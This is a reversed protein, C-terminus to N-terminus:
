RRPLEGREVIALIANFKAEFAAYADSVTGRPKREMLLLKPTKPLGDAKKITARPEADIIKLAVNWLKGDIALMLPTYGYLVGDANHIASTLLCFTELPDLKNFAYEVLQKFYMMICGNINNAVYKEAFYGLSGNRVAKFCIAIANNRARDRCAMYLPLKMMLEAKEHLNSGDGELRTYFYSPNKNLARIFARNDGAGEGTIQAHIDQLQRKCVAFVNPMKSHLAQLVTTRRGNVTCPTDLLSIDCKAIEEIFKELGSEFAASILGGAVDGIYLLEPVISVTHILQESFNNKLNNDLTSVAACKRKWIACLKSLADRLAKKREVNIDDRVIKHSMVSFQAVTRRAETKRDETLAIEHSRNQFAVSADRSIKAVKALLAPLDRYLEEADHMIVATQASNKSKMKATKTNHHESKRLWKEPSGYCVSASLGFLAGCLLVKSNKNM